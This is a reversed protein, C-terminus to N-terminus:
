NDPGYMSQIAFIDSRGLNASFIYSNEAQMVSNFNTSHPLGLAHGIEHTATIAFKQPTFRYNINFFIDGDLPTNLSSPQYAAGLTNGLIGMDFTESDSAGDAWQLLIDASGTTKKTLQIGSVDDWKKMSQHIIQKATDCDLGLKPCNIIQYTLNTVKWAPRGSLDQPGTPIGHSAIIFLSVLSLWILLFILLFKM